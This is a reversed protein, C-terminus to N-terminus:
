DVHAAGQHARARLAACCLALAPTAAFATAVQIENEYVGNETERGLDARWKGGADTSINIEPWNEPILTMAADLSASFAPLPKWEVGDGNSAMRTMTGCLRGSCGDRDAKYGGLRVADQIDADLERDPGEGADVRSALEMLDTM